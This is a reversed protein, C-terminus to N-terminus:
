FQACVTSRERLVSEQKFRERYAQAVRRVRQAADADDRHVILVIRSSEASDKGSADRWHGAAALVTYGQPFAPGLRDHEFAQWASDDVRGGGPIDSGFYLTDRVLTQEDSRCGLPHERLLELRCGALALAGAVILAPARRIM